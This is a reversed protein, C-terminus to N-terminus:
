TFIFISGVNDFISLTVGGVPFPLSWICVEVRNNPAVSGVGVFFDNGRALVGIGFVAGFDDTKRVSIRFGVVEGIVVDNKASCKCIFIPKSFVRKAQGYLDADVGSSSFEVFCVM